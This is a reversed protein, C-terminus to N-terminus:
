DHGGRATRLGCWGEIGIAGQLRARRFHYGSGTLFCKHRALSRAATFDGAVEDTVCDATQGKSHLLGSLRHIAALRAQGPM